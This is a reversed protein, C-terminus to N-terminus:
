FLYLCYINKSPVMANLEIRNRDLANKETKTGDLSKAFIDREQLLHSCQARCADLQAVLEAVRGELAVVNEESNECQKRVLLLQERNSQLKM